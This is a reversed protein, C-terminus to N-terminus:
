PSAARLDELILILLGYLEFLDPCPVTPSQGANIAAMFENLQTGIRCVAAYAERNIEPVVQPRAECVSQRLLKSLSMERRGSLTQLRAREKTTVYVKIFLSRRHARKSAM